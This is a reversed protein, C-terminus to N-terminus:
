LTSRREECKRVVSWGSADGDQQRSALDPFELGDSRCKYRTGEPAKTRATFFGDDGKDMPISERDRIVLDASRKGPAYLRFTTQGNEVIPGFWTDSSAM